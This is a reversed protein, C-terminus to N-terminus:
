PIGKIRFYVGLGILIGLIGVIGWAINRQNKAQLEGKEAQDKRAALEATERADNGASERLGATTKREEQLQEELANALKASEASRTSIAEIEPKLGEPAKEALRGLGERVDEISAVLRETTITSETQKGSLKDLGARTDAGIVSPATRCSVLILIIGLALMM